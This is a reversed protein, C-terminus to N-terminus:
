LETSPLTACFNPTDHIMISFFCLIEDKLSCNMFDSLSGIVFSLVTHFSLSCHGFIIRCQCRQITFLNFLISSILMNNRWSFEMKKSVIHKSFLGFFDGYVANFSVLLLEARRATITSRLGVSLKNRVRNWARFIGFCLM